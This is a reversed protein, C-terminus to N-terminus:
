IESGQRTHRRHKEVVSRVGAVINKYAEEKRRWRSVPGGTDPLLKLTAFESGTLDADRILIPVIECDGGRMRQLACTLVSDGNMASNLFPQSLCILVVQARQLQNETETRVNTGALIKGPHWISIAHTSELARLYTYMEDFLRRDSEVYHVALPLISRVPPLFQPGSIPIDPSDILESVGLVRFGDVNSLKRLRELVDPTTIITVVLSGPSSGLITMESDGALVKLREALKGFAAHDLVDGEVDIRVQALTRIAPLVTWFVTLSYGRSRLDCRVHERMEATAPQVTGIVVSDRSALLLEAPRKLGFRERNRGLLSLLAYSAAFDGVGSEANPRRGSTPLTRRSAASARREASNLETSSLFDSQGQESAVLKKLYGTHPSCESEPEGAAVGRYRLFEASGVSVRCSTERLAQAIAEAVDLLTATTSASFLFIVAGGAEMLLGPRTAAPFLRRLGEAWATLEPCSSEPEMILAVDYNPEDARSNLSGLTTALEPTVTFGFGGSAPEMSRQPSRFAPEFPLWPAGLYEAVREPAVLLTSDEAVGSDHLTGGPQLRVSSGDARVHDIVATRPQGKADMWIKPDYEGAVGRALEAVRTSAAVNTLEFRAHDPGEVLLRRMLYDRLHASAARAEVRFNRSQLDAELHPALQAAQEMRMGPLDLLIWDSLSIGLNVEAGPQMEAAVRRASDLVTFPEADGQVTISSGPLERRTVPQSPVGLWDTLERFLRNGPYMFLVEQLLARVGDPLIGSGLETLVVRWFTKPEADSSIRHSPYGISALLVLAQAGSGFVEALHADLGHRLLAQVQERLPLTSWSLKSVGAIHGRIESEPSRVFGVSDIEDSDHPTSM